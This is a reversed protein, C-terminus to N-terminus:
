DQRAIGAHKLLDERNIIDRRCLIQEWDLVYPFCLILEGKAAHLTPTRKKKPIGIKSIGM